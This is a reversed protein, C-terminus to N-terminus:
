DDVGVTLVAACSVVFGGAVAGVGARTAHTGGCDLVIGVAMLVMGLVLDDMGVVVEGAAAAPM